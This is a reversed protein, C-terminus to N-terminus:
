VDFALVKTIHETDEQDEDESENEEDDDFVLEGFIGDDDEDEEDKNEKNEKEDETLETDSQPLTEIDLDGDCESDVQMEMADMPVIDETSVVEETENEIEEEVRIEKKGESNVRIRSRTKKAMRPAWLVNAPRKHCNATTKSKLTFIAHHPRKRSVNHNSAKWQKPAPLKHMAQDLWLNHVTKGATKTFCQGYDTRNDDNHTNHKKTIATLSWDASGISTDRRLGRGSNLAFTQM